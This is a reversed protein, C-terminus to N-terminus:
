RLSSDKNRTRSTTQSRRQSSRDVPHITASAANQAVKDWIAAAQDLLNPWLLGKWIDKLKSSWTQPKMTAVALFQYSRLVSATVDWQAPTFTASVAGWSSSWYQRKCVLLQPMGWTHLCPNNWCTIVSSSLIFKSAALLLHIKLVTSTVNFLVLALPFLSVRDARRESRTM